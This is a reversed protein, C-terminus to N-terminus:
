VFQELLVPVVGESEVRGGSAYWSVHGGVLLGYLPSGVSSPSRITGGGSGRAGQETDGCTPYREYVRAMGKVGEREWRRTQVLPYARSKKDGNSVAGM